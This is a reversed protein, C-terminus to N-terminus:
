VTLTAPPLGQQYREYIVQYATELIQTFRAIDFLRGQVRGRALKERVGALQLPQTGLVVAKAEYASLNDTIMEPLDLARLMSAGYRGAFTDGRCTLLPLGAWLADSGTAGANYPLTDLFLDAMAFRALYDQLSVFGAFVLRGADVGRNAAERRLNAVQDPNDELLWLVSGPVQQLIRMWVDFMRPSIKKCANFCCYVSGSQPLGWDARTYPKGSDARQTDNVQYSPVYIIKETYHVEDQPTILERDAIMYDIFDAGMSGLYGIYHLQLPAARLAFVDPRSHETYGALDVAIDLELERARQVCERDTLARVDVFRDFGRM